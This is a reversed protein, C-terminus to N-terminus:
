AGSRRDSPPRGSPVTRRSWKKEGLRHLKCWRPSRRRSLSAFASSLRLTPVAEQQQQHAPTNCYWNRRRSTGRSDAQSHRAPSAAGGNRGRQSLSTTSTTTTTTTASSSLFSFCLFSLPSTWMHHKFRRPGDNTRPVPRRLMSEHPNRRLLFSPKHSADQM